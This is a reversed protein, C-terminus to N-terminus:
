GDETRMAAVAPPIARNVLQRTAVLSKEPARRDSLLCLYTESRDTPLEAALAKGEPDVAATSANLNHHSIAEPVTASVAFVWLGVLSVLPIAFMSILFLRIPWSRVPRRLVAM